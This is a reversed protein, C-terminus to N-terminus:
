CELKEWNKTDLKGAKAVKDGFAKADRWTDFNHPHVLWGNCTEAALRLVQKSLPCADKTPKSHVYHKTVFTRKVKRVAM